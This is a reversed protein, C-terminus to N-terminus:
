PTRVILKCSVHLPAFTSMAVVAFQYKGPKTMALLALRDCRSAAVDTPESINSGTTSNVVTYLTTSPSSQGSLIGTVRIQPGFVEIADVTDYAFTDGIAVAEARPLSGFTIAAVACCMAVLRFM